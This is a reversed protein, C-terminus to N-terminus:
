GFLANLEPLMGPKRASPKVSKKSIIESAKRSKAQTQIAIVKQGSKPDKLFNGGSKHKAKAV